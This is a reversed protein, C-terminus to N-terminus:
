RVLMVWGSIAKLEPELQILYYYVGVPVAKGKYKGDWPQSTNGTAQYVTEGSRNMVKIIVNPYPGLPAIKWVDNQGDGNTSFTNPVNLNEYVKVLVEDESSACGGSNEVHLTYTMDQPPTAIPNLKNPDDLYDSPTWYYKTYPGTAKGDLQIPNDKLVRKDEGASATVKKIVNITIPLTAECAGNAVTVQYTTTETPSATPNPIDTASLGDAPLWTYTTGGAATLVTQDGECITNSSATVSAVPPDNVTVVTTATSKCGGENSVVVTYTGEMNHSANNIVPNQQTSTFNNPGTWLYSTGAEVKLVIPQGLCVKNSPYSTVTTPSVVSLTIPASVVRCNISSINNGDAVALRYQYNNKTANNFNVQYQSGTAGAIDTWTGNILQQWQYNLQNFGTGINASLLFSKTDGECAYTLQSTVGNITPNVTPGCPRFTIDDLAIDNGVGGPGNNIMKLVIAANSTTTFTMAYQKWTPQATELIDGTNYSKLIIGTTTEITFTVNPKNGSYNLINIIWAAFEYTTGPCLGSITSQYFIGPTTSANVVMMYGNPDNPTHNNIQFWGNGPSNHMGNTSQAITYQGDNPTGAMYTYNTLTGSLQPGFADTGRGFDINIVPDGLSGTCVQAKLGAISFLLAFLSWLLSRIAKM